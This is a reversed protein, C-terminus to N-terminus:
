LLKSQNRFLSHLLELVQQGRVDPPDLFVLLRRAIPKLGCLASATVVAHDFTGLPRHGGLLTPTALSRVQHPRLLHICQVQHHWLLPVRQGHLLPLIAGHYHRM